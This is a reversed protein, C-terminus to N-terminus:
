SPVGVSPEVATEEPLAAAPRRKPRLAALLKREAAIVSSLLRRGTRTRTVWRGACVTVRGVPARAVIRLSLLGGDTLRTEVHDGVSRGMRPRVPLQGGSYMRDATVRTRYTGDGVHLLLRLGWSPDIIGLPRLVETVNVDVSWTIRRQGYCVNVPVLVRRNSHRTDFLELEGTVPADATIRGLPNVVGGALYMRGQTLAMMSVENGVDFEDLPVEDLGLETVDLQARGLETDLHDDCWYVRGGKAVLDTLLRGRRGKRGAFDSAVIARQSEGHLLLFAMIGHVPKAEEFASPDLEALYSEAVAQFERRYVAGRMRLDSVYMQLDHNIFKIDKHLKLDPCDRGLLFEDVRRNVEVRDVFNRLEAKSSTISQRNGRRAVTWNYVRDPIFAIRKASLYAQASFLNDEYHLGDAFRLGSRELFAHRYMKNTSLTDNLMDPHDRVNEYVAPAEFLRPCWQSEAGDDIHVRVCRGAVFDAGTRRAAALLTACADPQYTDDSDLFMVYEGRVHELGVNRPRSCGGSNEPLEVVRVRDPHKAAFRGAVAASRDTSADDVIVVELDTLTQALVSKVAAPLRDADNFVIVVVSVAPTSASGDDGTM